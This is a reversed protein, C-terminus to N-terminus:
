MEVEKRKMVFVQVVTVSALIVFFVVAKASAYTYENKTFADLYIHLALSETTGYPGGKTLAFNLDFVKFGHSIALFLCVTIAPMILPIIIKQLRHWRNAGDIQAAELLDTPIGQLAALYIVMLYGAYHWVSVLILSWFAYEPISLWNKQFIEIGTLSAIQPFGQTIIFQWIFGIVLSGMVHPLFFVTRLANKTKLAMNLVFALAFGVLNVLITSVFVYKMTFIFSKMHETDELLRKYNSWGAWKIESSIGNWDQFSFIIARIFPLLIFLAFFLVAPSVFAIYILLKRTRM